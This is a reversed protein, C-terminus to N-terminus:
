LAGRHSSVHEHLVQAYLDGDEAEIAAALQRHQEFGSVLQEPRVRLLQYRLRQQRDRLLGMFHMAMPNGSAAVVALHFEDDAQVFREVDRSAVAASQVDLLGALTRLVEDGVGNAVLRAAAPAEIAERMELVDAAESPSMPRVVAGKRSELSLLEESALRLFAEHM